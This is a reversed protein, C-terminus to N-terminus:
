KNVITRTATRLAVANCLPFRVQKSRLLKEETNDLLGTYRLSLCSSSLAQESCLVFVTSKCWVPLLHHCPVTFFCFHACFFFRNFRHFSKGQKRWPILSTPREDVLGFNVNLPQQSLLYVMIKVKALEQNWTRKVWTCCPVFSSGLSDTSFHCKQSCCHFPQPEAVSVSLGKQGTNM